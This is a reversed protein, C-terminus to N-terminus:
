EKKVIPLTATTGSLEPTSRISQKLLINRGPNQQNNNNANNNQVIFQRIPQRQIQISSNYNSPPLITTNNASSDEIQHTRPHDIESPLITRHYYFNNMTPAYNPSEQPHTNHCLHSVNTAAFPPAQYPAAPYTPSSISQPQASFQKAPNFHQSYPFAHPYNQSSYTDTNIREYFSEPQLARGTFFNSFCCM